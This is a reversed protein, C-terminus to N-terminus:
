NQQQRQLLFMKFGALVGRPLTNNNLNEIIQIRQKEEEEEERKKKDELYWVAVVVQTHVADVVNKQHVESAIFLIPALRELNLLFM